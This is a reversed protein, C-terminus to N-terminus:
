NLKAVFIINIYYSCTPFSITNTSSICIFIMFVNKNSISIYSYGFFSNKVIQNFSLVSFKNNSSQLSLSHRLTSIKLNKNQETYTDYNNFFSLTEWNEYTDNMIRNLKPQFLDNPVIQSFTFSIFLALLFLKITKIIYKNFM